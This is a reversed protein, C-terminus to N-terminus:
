PRGATPNVCRRSSEPGGEPGDPRTNRLRNHFACALRGNDQTTDGGKSSELIHDIQSRDPPEECTEHFCTRDRM